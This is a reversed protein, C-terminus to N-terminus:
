KLQGVIFGNMSFSLRWFYAVKEPFLFYPFLKGAYFVPKALKVLFSVYNKSEIVRFGAEEFITEMRRPTTVYQHTYDHYFLWKSHSADPYLVIVHGEPKLFGKLHELSSIVERYSPLHELVHGIFVLDFDKEALSIETPLRGDAVQFGLNAVMNRLQQNPEVGVYQIGNAKCYNAFEGFGVGIELAKQPAPIKKLVRRHLIDRVRGAIGPKYYNQLNYCDYEM